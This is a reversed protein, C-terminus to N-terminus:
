MQNQNRFSIAALAPSFAPARPDLSRVANCFAGSYAIARTFALVRDHPTRYGLAADIALGV